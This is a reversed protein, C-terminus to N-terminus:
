PLEPLTNFIIHDENELVLLRSTIDPITVTNITNIESLAQSNSLINQELQNAVANKDAIWETGNWVYWGSPYYTGSLQVGGVQDPLWSTGQSSEVYALDGDSEGSVLEDFVEVKQSLGINADESFNLFVGLDLILDGLQTYQIDSENVWNSISVPHQIVHNVQFRSRVGVNLLNNKILSNELIKTNYFFEYTDKAYDIGNIRFTRETSGGQIKVM